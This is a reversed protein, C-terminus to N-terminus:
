SIKYDHGFLSLNTQGRFTDKKASVLFEAADATELADIVENFFLVKRSQKGPAGIHVATHKREGTTKDNYFQVSQIAGRVLFRPEEFSNGYPKWKDVENALEVRALDLPLEFDYAMRSEWMEPNARRLGAAYATLATRIAAENELAFSFGGAARHGGFKMFLDGCSKMAETVDFGAISRASGKGIGDKRQFLWTPRWFTEAIRSAAIGVVGSHWDGGLFLISDDPHDAGLLLAEHVIKKQILKREDNCRGMYEVLKDPTESIFAEVVQDAHGLRGVANIRPGLRFGVDAEDLGEQVSAAERLAQLVPRKSRVLAAVGLRALRHNVRNLPVVDCITAMGALALLDTWLEQPVPFQDALRRLLVFTIGCGCLEQYTEDPHNKPNLTICDPMKEIQIKHHDTCIFQVGKERCYKAEENATIGTDMTVIVDVKEDDILHRVAALNVGYGEKFRCPIYTVFNTFGIARLFWVWSVCSMTGDVDYDAYLAIRKGTRIADSLCAVAGELGHDGYELKDLPEFHRNSLLLRAVDPYNRPVQATRAQWHHFKKGV